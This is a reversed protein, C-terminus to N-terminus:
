PKEEQDPRCVPLKWLAPTADQPGALPDLTWDTQDTLPVAIPNLILFFLHRQKQHTSPSLGSPSCSSSLAEKQGAATYRSSLRIFLCRPLSTIHDLFGDWPQLMKRLCGGQFMQPFKGATSTLTNPRPQFSGLGSQQVSPLTDTHTLALLPQSNASDYPLFLDPSIPSTIGLVPHSISSTSTCSIKCLADHFPKPVPFTQLKQIQSVETCILPYQWEM